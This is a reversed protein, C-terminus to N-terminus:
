DATRIYITKNKQEFRLHHAFLMNHLIEQATGSKFIATVKRRSIDLGAPVIIHLGHQKELRKLATTLPVDDLVMWGKTWTSEDVYLLPKIDIHGSKNKYTMQQGPALYQLPRNLMTDSTSKIAVRGSLLSVRIESEDAFAEVNFATGLVHTSIDGHNVIFPHQENSAVRFFAEGELSIVRSSKGFLRASYRFQSKPSLWISSGDLLVAKKTHNSTNSITEWEDQIPQTAVVTREKAPWYFTFFIIAPTLVAAAAATYWWKRNIVVARRLFGPFTEKRIGSILSSLLTAPLEEPKVQQQEENLLEHLVALDSNEDALYHLVAKEEEPSCAGAFYKQLLTKHINM